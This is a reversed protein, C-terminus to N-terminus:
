RPCLAGAHLILKSTTRYDLPLTHDKAAAWSLDLASSTKTGDNSYELTTEVRDIGWFIPVVDDDHAAVASATAAIDGANGAEDYARVAFYYNQGPTLGDVVMRQARGQRQPIPPKGAPNASAFNADDIPATSWRVDYRYVTGDLQGDDGPATWTLLVTGPEDTEGAVHTGSTDHTAASLGAPAGPVVEDGYWQPTYPANGHCDLNSCTSYNVSQNTRDAYNYPTYAGDTDLPFLSGPNAPDDLLYLYYDGADDNGAQGDRYTDAPAAAQDGSHAGQPHCFVCSQNKDATTASGPGGGNIIDGISIVHQAHAGARNPWDVPDKSDVDPWFNEFNEAADGGGHCGMCDAEFATEGSDHVHCGTCASGPNHGADDEAARNFYAVEASDHCVQCVGYNGGGLEAASTYYSSRATRDAFGTVSRGGITGRIM